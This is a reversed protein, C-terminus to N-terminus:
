YFYIKIEDNKEIIQIGKYYHRKSNIKIIFNTYEEDNKFKFVRGALSIPENIDVSLQLNFKEIVEQVTKFLNQYFGEEQPYRTLLDKYIELTESPRNEFFNAVRGRCGCNPNDSASVIDAFIEPYKEFSKFLEQKLEQSIKILTDFMLFLTTRLEFKNKQFDPSNKDSSKYSNIKNNINEVYINLYESM